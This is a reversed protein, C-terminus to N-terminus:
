YTQSELDAIKADIRIILDSIVRTRDVDTVPFHSRAFELRDKAFDLDSIAREENFTEPNPHEIEALLTNAKEIATNTVLGQGIERIKRVTLPKGSLVRGRLENAAVRAFDVDHRGLEELYAHIGAANQQRINDRNIFRLVGQILKGFFTTSKTEGLGVGDGERTIQRLPSINTDSVLTSLPIPM